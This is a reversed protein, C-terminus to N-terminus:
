IKKAYDLSIWGAGSKLKGWKSAGVGDSEDVITFVGKGTYGNAAYNTGPGKRIRLDSITVQVTYPVFTAAVPYVAKGSSDFVTYGPHSDAMAKANALIAYAGIQSKADAWSKRVRYLGDSPASPTTTGSGGGSTAKTAIVDALIRLIKSGYGAGAAWGLGKPNEKQGLWEVYPACGRTVYKYRPDVCAQRLAETSAYAKLHQIQARIGLQPTAFSNGAVGNSTVGMGCFNNQTLKVASGAFGFNGTELCSQAFAVDGRIGEAKGESIYLPIMDIVSQPVAANVARIYAQMQATTAKATGMIATGDDATGTGGTSGSGFLQATVKAALDGMRAYMWDGPCSKNAFWRHVTLLMEGSKPEYALAKDKNDIWILKTKGNRKCIDVCLEILRDYVVQRFAYPATTDSACEITVARQDNANSSSCWSRNCEEVYMGVAGDLGIGYNSSAQRSAPAFVNGLSQVTVQGVVCHPTIDTWKKAKPYVDRYAEAQSMGKIINQAYQEM